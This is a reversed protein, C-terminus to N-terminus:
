TDVVEFLHTLLNVIRPHFLEQFFIAFMANRLLFLEMARGRSESVRAEMNRIERRLNQEGDYKQFVVAKMDIVKVEICALVFLVPM